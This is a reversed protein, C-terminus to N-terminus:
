HLTGTFVCVCVCWNERLAQSETFKIDKMRSNELQQLPIEEDSNQIWKVMCSTFQENEILVHKM